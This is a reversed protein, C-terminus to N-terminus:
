SRLQYPKPWRIPEIRWNCGERLCHCGGAIGRRKEIIERCHFGLFCCIKGLWVWSPLKIKLVPVREGVLKLILILWAIAILIIIIM